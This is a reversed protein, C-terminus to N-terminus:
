ASTLGQFLSSLWSRKAESPVPAIRVFMLTGAEGRGLRRLDVAFLDVPASGPWAVM